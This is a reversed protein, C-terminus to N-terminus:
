LIFIRKLRFPNEDLSNTGEVATPSCIIGRSKLHSITEDNFSGAFGEPYSFHSVKQISTKNIITNISSDIEDKMRHSDLYSLISHTKTHGGFSFLSEASLEEVQNWNMKLDLPDNSSTPIPKMCQDYISRVLDNSAFHFDGKVNKRIENLIKKESLLDSLLSTKQSWPLNIEKPRYNEFCFEIKDIWSMANYDIFDSTLYFTAPVEYNRLIPAAISFNNEFGDDFTISFSNSPLSGVESLSEIYDNLSVATGNSVLDNIVEEFYYEEIHKRNYNRIRYNSKKVVGHLLFVVFRDPELYQSYKKL